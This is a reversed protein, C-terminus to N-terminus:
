DATKLGIVSLSGAVLMRRYNKHQFNDFCMYIRRQTPIYNNL